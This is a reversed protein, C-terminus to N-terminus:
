ASPARAPGALGAAVSWVIRGLRHASSRREVQKRPRLPSAAAPNLRLPGAAALGVVSAARACGYARRHCPLGGGPTGIARAAPGACRGAPRPMPAVPPGTARVPAPVANCVSFQAVLVRAGACPFPRPMLCFRGRQSGQHCDPPQGCPRRGLTGGGAPLAAVACPAARAPLVGALPTTPASCRRRLVRRWWILTRLTHASRQFPFRAGGRVDGVARCSVCSGARSARRWLRDPGCDRAGGLRSRVRVVRARGCVVRSCHRPPRVWAAAHCRRRARRSAAAGSRCGASARRACRLAHACGGGLVVARRSPAVACPRRERAGRTRCRLLM